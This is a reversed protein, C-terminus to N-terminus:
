VGYLRKRPFLQHREHVHNSSYYIRILVSLISLSLQLIRDGLQFPKAIETTDGAGAQIYHDLNM